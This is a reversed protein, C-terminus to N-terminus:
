KEVPVKNESLFKLLSGVPLAYALGSGYNIGADTIMGVLNGTGDYVPSGSAGPWASKDIVLRDSFPAYGGVYGKSTVPFLFELPFGTFAVPTGDVIALRPDFSIPRIHSNVEKIAFPNENTKCVAIDILNGYQCEAFIFVRVPRGKIHVDWPDTPEFIAPICPDDATQVTDWGEKIVHGATVFHGQRNILFGSAMVKKIKGNPRACVIAVISQEVTQITKVSVSKPEDGFGPVAWFVITLAIFFRM